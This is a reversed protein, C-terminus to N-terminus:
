GGGCEPRCISRRCRLFGSSSPKSHGPAFQRLRDQGATGIHLDARFDLRLAELGDPSDLGCLSMSLLSEEPSGVPVLVSSDYLPSVWLVSILTNKRRHKGTLACLYWKQAVTNKSM